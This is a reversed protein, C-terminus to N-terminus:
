TSRPPLARVGHSWCFFKPAKTTYSSGNPLPCFNMFRPPQSFAASPPQFTFRLSFAM